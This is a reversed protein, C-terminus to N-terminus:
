IERRSVHGAWGMKRLKNMRIIQHRTCIFNKVTLCEKVKQFMRARLKFYKGTVGETHRHQNAVIHQETTFQNTGIEMKM